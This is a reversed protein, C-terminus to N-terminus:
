EYFFLQNLHDSLEKLARKKGMLLHAFEGRDCPHSFREMKQLLSSIVDELEAKHCM